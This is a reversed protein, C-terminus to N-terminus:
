EVRTLGMLLYDMPYGPKFGHQRVLTALQAYHRISHLIAHLFMTRRTARAQGMSITKFEMSSEWDGDRALEERYLQMAAQHAAFLEGATGYPIADYGTEPIGALRQAYRMEVAVIHQLLEAVTKVGYIDCPLKLIEPYAELLERWTQATRENWALLENATLVPESM